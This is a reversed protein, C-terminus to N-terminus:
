SVADWPSHDAENAEDVLRADYLLRDVNYTIADVPLALRQAIAQLLRWSPQYGDLEIHSLHSPSVGVDRAFRGTTIGRAERIARVAGGVIRLRDDRKPM